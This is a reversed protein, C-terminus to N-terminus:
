GWAVVERQLKRACERGCCRQKAYKNVIFPKGCYACERTENDVGSKKRAATKCSNSCFGTKRMDRSMYGKGCHECVRETAERNEWTEKGHQAHWTRGVESGHWAAALPRIREIHMKGYEKREDTSTHLSEHEGGPMCELNWIENNARNEDKHHVHYGEPVPGNHHEWVARHLRKGKRQFYFGCLYVVRAYRALIPLM